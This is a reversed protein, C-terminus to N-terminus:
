RSLQKIQETINDLKKMDQLAKFRWRQQGTKQYLDEACGMAYVAGEQAQKLQDIKDKAKQKKGAMELRADRVLVMGDYLNEVEQTTMAAISKM